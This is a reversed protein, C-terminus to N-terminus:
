DETETEVARSWQYGYATARKSIALYIGNPAAHPKGNTRLWEVALKASAFTEDPRGGGHRTVPRPARGRGSAPRKGAAPKETSNKAPAPGGALAPDPDQEGIRNLAGLFKMYAAASRMPHQECMEDAWDRMTRRITGYADDPRDQLLRTMTDSLRLATDELVRLSIEPTWRPTIDAMFRVYARVAWVARMALREAWTDALIGTPLALNQHEITIIKAFQRYLAATRHLIMPTGDGALMRAWEIAIPMRTGYHVTPLAWWLPMGIHQDSVGAPLLGERDWQYHPDLSTLGELGTVRGYSLMFGTVNGDQDPILLTRRSQLTLQDAIGDPRGGLIETTLPDREWAPLDDPGTTLEGGAAVMPSNALLTRALTPYQPWMLYARGLTGAPRLGPPPLLKGKSARADHPDASKIGGPDFANLTLLRAAARDPALQNERTDIFMDIQMHLDSAPRIKCQLGPSQLFPRVPDYLDLRDAWRDLYRDLPDTDLRDAEWQARWLGIPDDADTNARIIIAALLRLIPLHEEARVADIWRIRGADHLTDRISLTARHGDTYTVPIWPRSALNFEPRTM